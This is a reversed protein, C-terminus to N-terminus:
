MNMINRVMENTDIELNIAIGVACTRTCAYRVDYITDRNTTTRKTFDISINGIPIKAGCHTCVKEKRTAGIKRIEWDRDKIVKFIKVLKYKLKFEEM